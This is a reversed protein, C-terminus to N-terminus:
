RFETKRKRTCAAPHLCVLGLCVLGTAFFCIAIHSAAGRGGDARAKQSRSGRLAGCFCTYNYKWCCFILKILSEESKCVPLTAKREGIFGGAAFLGAGPDAGGLKVGRASLVSSLYPASRFAKRSRLFPLLRANQGTQTQTQFFRM